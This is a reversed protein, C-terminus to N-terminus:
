VIGALQQGTDQISWHQQQVLLRCQSVLISSVRWSQCNVKYMMTLLLSRM